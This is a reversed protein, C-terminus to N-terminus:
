KDLCVDEMRYGNYMGNVMITLGKVYSRWCTAGTDYYIMPRAGDEQLKRDIEWVLRKRQEQDAEMSQEDFVKETEPNCYGTYNRDSGCAYNEYLQQDPDDVSGPTFLFAIEFHKRALKSFWNGTEVADLEGDIYVKKLQSILIVAPDRAPPVNRVSVKM